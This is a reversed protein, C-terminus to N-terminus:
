RPGDGQIPKSGIVELNVTVREALQALLSPLKIDNRVVQSPLTLSYIIKQRSVLVIDDVLEMDRLRAESQSQLSWWQGSHVAGWNLATPPTNVLGACPTWRRASRIAGCQWFIIMAGRSYGCATTPSKSFMPGTLKVM